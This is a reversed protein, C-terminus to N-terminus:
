TVQQKNGFWGLQRLSIFVHVQEGFKTHDNYYRSGECTYHTNEFLGDNDSVNEGTYKEAGM